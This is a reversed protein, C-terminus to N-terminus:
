LRRRVLSKITFLVYFITFHLCKTLVHHGTKERPFIAQSKVSWVEISKRLFHIM